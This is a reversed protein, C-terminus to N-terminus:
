AAATDALLEKLTAHNASQVDPWAGLPVFKNEALLAFKRRADQWPRLDDTTVVITMPRGGLLEHGRWLRDLFQVVWQRHRAVLGALPNDLLLVEPKLILARALAVRYRWNVPINAPTSDAFAGLELADLMLEVPRATDAASLNKQYRLPLAVNEAATLQAFLPGGQFVIGLRLRQALESEGLTSAEVGFLKYSGQAPAMLGGALKLFDSKGSREPGAITWFEGPAVSWTVDELVIHASDRMTGVCAGAMEMILTGGGANIDHEPNM